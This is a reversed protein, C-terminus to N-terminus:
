KTLENFLEAYRSRKISQGLMPINPIQAGPAEMFRDCVYDVKEQDTLLSWGPHETFFIKRYTIKLIDAIKDIM